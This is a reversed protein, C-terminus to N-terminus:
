GHGPRWKEAELSREQALEVLAAAQAVERAVTDPSFRDRDAEKHEIWAALAVAGLSILGLVVLSGALAVVYQTGVDDM